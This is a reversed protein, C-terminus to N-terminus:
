DEMRIIRAASSLAAIEDINGGCHAREAEVRGAVIELGAALAARAVTEEDVHCAYCQPDDRGREAFMPDCTCQARLAAKIGRAAAEVLEDDLREAIM